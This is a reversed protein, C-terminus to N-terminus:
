RFGCEHSGIYTTGAEILYISKLKDQFKGRTDNSLHYFPVVFKALSVKAPTGTILKSSRLKFWVM